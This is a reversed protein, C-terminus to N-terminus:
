VNQDNCCVNCDNNHKNNNGNHLNSHKSNHKYNYIKILVVISIYVVIITVIINIGIKIETKIQDLGTNIIKNKYSPQLCNDYNCINIHSHLPYDKKHYCESNDIICYNFNNTHHNNNNTSNYKVVVNYKNNECKNNQIHKFTIANIKNKCGDYKKFSNIFLFIIATIIQSLIIALM